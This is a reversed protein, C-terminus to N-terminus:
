VYTGKPLGDTALAAYQEVLGKGIVINYPLDALVLFETQRKQGNQRWVVRIGGLAVIPSGNISKFQPGKYPRVDDTCNYGASKLIDLSIWNTDSGTDYRGHVNVWDGSFRPMLQGDFEFNTQILEAWSPTNMTALAQMLITMEQDSWADTDEKRFVREFEDQVDLVTGVTEKGYRM